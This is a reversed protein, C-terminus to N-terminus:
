EGWDKLFASLEDLDQEKLKKNDYLTNILSVLSNEHFREFFSETEFKLYDDKMVVPFYKREKENKESRLFGREVLRSLLSILTQVKWKKEKGLQEMLMNTTIPTENEWIAKMIEFETDPLKKKFDM